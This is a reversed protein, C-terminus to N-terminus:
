LCRDPSMFGSDHELEHALRHEGALHLAKSLVEVTTHKPERKLWRSLMEQFYDEDGYLGPTRVINNQEHFNFDLESAIKRWSSAAAKLFKFLKDCECSELVHVGAFLLFYFLITLLSNFKCSASELAERQPQHSFILLEKLEIQQLASNVVLLDREAIATEVETASVLGHEAHDSKFPYEKVLSPRIFFQKTQIGSCFQEKASLALQIITSRLHACEMERDALCCLMVVVERMQPPDRIEILSKVGKRNCWYIGNKWFICKRQLIYSTHAEPTLACSFAIRLLLVQLFQSTLYQGPDCCQLMWGCYHPFRTDAEWVDHPVELSVLGPFFLYREKSVGTLESQPCHDQNILHLVEDNHIGKCFEFHSMFLVLMEPNHQPFKKALRSVPVVGTANALNCHQKFGEPAFLVGNVESLLAAQDLVIWSKAIDECNKIFMMCGAKDLEECSKYLYEPNNQRLPIELTESSALRQVEECTLAPVGRFRDLLFIYLYHLTTADLEKRIAECTNKVSTRLKTIGRSNHQRCDMPIFDHIHFKSAVTQDFEFDLKVKPDEGRSKLVDKHSGVIIVHPKTHLSTCQNALFTMWFVLKQKIDEKSDRLDAVTLFLPTASSISNKLLAAHSAYYEQQGAFDFFTVEGYTKSTFQCPVIGATKQEVNRVLQPGTIFALAAGMASTETQIARTLSSKGVSPNGVIFIKVPPPPPKVTPIAGAELLIKACSHSVSNNVDLDLPTHGDKDKCNPNCKCKVLLYEAIYRNASKVAYHLPTQGDKDVCMPDCHCTEILHKVVDLKGETVAYHLPTRGNKDVCMPDCHCTEILHKVVDLKNRTVVYYFPTRGDKDECMPDCHCTEILYKVVDFKDETVAYHLPTRGYEDVCMPDCHCTEILYKVVDLTGKTVAYHLPTRGDKDVRMPDCHCTEILYKVVDLKGETVAYHLLTRGYKDVRMPDCHCTEILYKVVDLTGETVAYHLPTRGYEDVCMPDCHCTEILYKVVDLKGETVAYHLPTQGYDDVRMPDCHCTEILYKVVDLKGETVAYHLPTWGDKDVRMPDCHCTEILYKVVDLTGETVAYHFPTRGYWDVRMPDCHCTEILYKVVDLKGETVAYHLPTWGDKDVRMPDCHCTEILYKVVDLTGETVAYHLPTRGYWDVRMPDCHCTEILYKVVDLTGETVAYYLPTRGDKDVRMPDCHCTEILYKVVDLTGETVAYYLPTRGYEDVCMPDCHCTEILYKVVDLKDETVAYYLPTRGDKNVRMPDCHCTEILYKVVDLKDETVAYYLPTRGDKNVRMPDCHCTEILYKVVDLSSSSSSSSSGFYYYEWGCAYHLPTYKYSDNPNCHQEEILYKVVNLHCRACSTELATQERWDRENPDEGEEEILRRVERLNGEWTANVLRASMEFVINSVSDVRYFGAPDFYRSRLLCCTSLGSILKRNYFNIKNALLTVGSM